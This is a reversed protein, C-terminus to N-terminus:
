KKNKEILDIIDISDKFVSESIKVDVRGSYNFLELKHILELIRKTVDKSINNRLLVNHLKEKTFDSQNINFKKSFYLSLSQLLLDKFLEPNNKRALEYAKVIQKKSDRATKSQTNNTTKKRKYLYYFLMNAILLFAIFSLAIILIMKNSSTIKESKILDKKNVLKNKRIIDGTVKIKKSEKKKTIYKEKKPDFFSIEYEPFQIYGSNKENALISYNHKKEGKITRSEHINWNDNIEPDYLDVTSDNEFNLKPLDFYNLNGYGNFKLEVSLVDNFDISDPLESTELNYQGVAGIFSSPKEEPLGKINISLKNTKINKTIIDKAWGYGSIYQCKNYMRDTRNCPIAFSINFDQEDINYSGEEQYLLIVSRIEVSNYIEGNIMERKAEGTIPIEEKWVNTYNVLEPWKYDVPVFDSPYSIKYTLKIPEGIYVENDPEDSLVEFYIPKSNINDNEKYSSDKIVTIKKEKTKLLNGDVIISAPKIYFEGSKNAKLTYSFKQTFFKQTNVKGNIITTSSQSSNSMQPKSTNGSFGSIDPPTFDNIKATNEYKLVFSLNFYSGQVVRNNCEIYFEQSFSFLCIFYIFKFLKM